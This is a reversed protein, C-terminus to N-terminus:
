SNVEGQCTDAGLQFNIFSEADTKDERSIKFSDSHVSPLFVEM